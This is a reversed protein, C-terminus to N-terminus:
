RRSLCFAEPIHERSGAVIGKVQELIKKLEVRVSSESSLLRQLMRVHSLEMVFLILGNASLLDVNRNIVILFEGDSFVSVLKVSVNVLSLLFDSLLHKLRM